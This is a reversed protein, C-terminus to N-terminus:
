RWRSREKETDALSHLRDRSAAPSCFSFLALMDAHTCEDRGENEDVDRKRMRGRGGGNFSM